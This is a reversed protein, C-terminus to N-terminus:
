TVHTVSSALDSADQLSATLQKCIAMSDHHVVQVSQVM